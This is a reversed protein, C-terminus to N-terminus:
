LVPTAPSAADPTANVHAEKIDALANDIPDSATAKQPMFVAPRKARMYEIVLKDSFKRQTLYTYRTFDNPDIVRIPGDKTTVLEDWGYLALEQLRAEAKDVGLEYANQWQQAFIKGAESGDNAWTYLEALMVGAKAAASHPPLPRIDNDEDGILAALFRDIVAERAMDLKPAPKNTATLDSSWAM